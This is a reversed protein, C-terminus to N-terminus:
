SAISYKLIVHLVNCTVQKYSSPCPAPAVTNRLSLVGIEVESNASKLPSMNLAYLDIYHFMDVILCPIAM